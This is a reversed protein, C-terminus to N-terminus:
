LNRAWVGHLCKSTFKWSLIGDNFIWWIRWIRRSDESNGNIIIIIIHICARWHLLLKNRRAKVSNYDKNLHIEEFPTWCNPRCKSRSWSIVSYFILQPCFWHGLWLPKQILLWVIPNIELCCCLYCNGIRRIREVEFM